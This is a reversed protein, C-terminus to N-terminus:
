RGRRWREHGASVGQREFEAERLAERWWRRESAARSTASPADADLVAWDLGEVVPGLAGREAYLNGRVHLVARGALTPALRPEAIVGGADAVIPRALRHLARAGEDPQM